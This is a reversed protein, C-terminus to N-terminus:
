KSKRKKNRKTVKDWIEEFVAFNVEIQTSLAYTVGYTDGLSTIIGNDHLLKLHHRVTHYDLQLTTALQNANQPVDKLVLIIRGRTIGGRTGAILWGILHKLHSVHQAMPEAGCFYSRFVEPVLWM